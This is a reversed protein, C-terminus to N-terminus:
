IKDTPMPVRRKKLDAELQKYEEYEPSARDLRAIYQRLAGMELIADNAKADRCGALRDLSYSFFDEKRAANDRWIKRLEEKDTIVNKANKPSRGGYYNDSFTALWTKEEESLKDLYDYDILPQNYKYHCKKDIGGNVVKQKYKFNRKVRKAM